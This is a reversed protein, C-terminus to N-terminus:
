QITIVISPTARVSIARTAQTHWDIPASAQAQARSPSRPRPRLSPMAPSTLPPRGAAATNVTPAWIVSLTTTPM